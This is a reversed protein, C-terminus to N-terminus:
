DVISQYVLNKFETGYLLGTHPLIQIMFLGILEEEPDIWFRTGAAGGWSYEGASGLAGSLGPERIVRFTLGFGDNPGILNGVRPLDGIHDSSMLEVSKRSLLRTGELEGGNLLMQCFRLYDGVTSVLGSGGGLMAPKTKYSDQPPATSREVRNDEGPSYLVALRSHKAEPVWHATDKMGLPGFIREELYVDYTQGSMVEVLAALVDQSLGYRWVDGPHNHLPAQGLGRALDGISRDASGSGAIQRYYYKGAADRPGAYSIGSTHTLLDRITVDRRAPVLRQRPAGTGPDTYHEVVELDGLAPIWHKAPTSLPWAQEEHLMMVAVGTIAKTMSYMRFMADPSMARKQERDAHGWTAQYAVKGRRAVLGIAGAIRGEDVHAQMVRDIRELRDASLGLEAPSANPLAAVDSDNAAAGAAPVGILGALLLTILLVLRSTRM